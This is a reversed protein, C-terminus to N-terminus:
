LPDYLVVQVDKWNADHFEQIMVKVRDWQLGGLGCGLAPIAISKWGRAKIEADLAVLGSSIYEYESDKYVQNKTPFNVVAPGGNPDVWVHMTGPTLKQAHCLTVYEENMQPYKTRFALALGGGMVGVCNVANCIAECGSQFIDGRRNELM